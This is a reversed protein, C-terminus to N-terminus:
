KVCGPACYASAFLEVQVKAVCCHRNAAAGGCMRCVASAEPARLIRVVSALDKQHLQLTSALAWVM